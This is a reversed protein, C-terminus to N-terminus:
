VLWYHLFSFKDSNDTILHCSHKIGNMEDLYYDKM